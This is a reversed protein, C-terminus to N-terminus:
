SHDALNTNTFNSEGDNRYFINQDTDNALYLDIDGDNDYDSEAVGM